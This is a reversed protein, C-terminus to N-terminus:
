GLRRQIEVASPVFGKVEDVGSITEVYPSPCSGLASLPFIRVERAVRCLGLISAEHFAETM